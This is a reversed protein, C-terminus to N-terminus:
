SDIVTLKSALDIEYPVAMYTALLAATEPSVRPLLTSGTEDGEGYTEPLAPTDVLSVLRESAVRHQDIRLTITTPTTDFHERYWEVLGPLGVQFFEGSVRINSDSRKWEPEWHSEWAQTDTEDTPLEAFELRSPRYHIDGDTASRPEVIRGPRLFPTDRDSESPSVGDALLNVHGRRELLQQMYRGLDRDPDQYFAVCNAGSEIRPFEFPHLLDPLEDWVEKRRAFEGGLRLFRRPTDFPSDTIIRSGRPAGDTASVVADLDYEQMYAEIEDESVDGFAWLDWRDGGSRESWADSTTVSMGVDRLQGALQLGRRTQEDDRLISIKYRTGHLEIRHLRLNEDVIRDESPRTPTCDDGFQVCGSLAAMGVGTGALLQRRSFRM